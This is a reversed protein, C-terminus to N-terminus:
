STAVSTAASSSATINSKSLSSVSSQSTVSLRRARESHGSSSGQYQPAQIQQQQGSSPPTNPRSSNMFAPSPGPFSGPGNFNSANRASGGHNLDESRAHHGYDAQDVKIHRDHDMTSARTPIFQREPLPTPNIPPASYPGTNQPTNASSSNLRQDSRAFRSNESALDLAQTRQDGVVPQYYNGMQSSASGPSGRQSQDRPINM